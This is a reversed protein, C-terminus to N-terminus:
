RTAPGGQDSGDLGAERGLTRLKNALLQLAEGHGLEAFRVQEQAEFTELFLSVSTLAASAAIFLAWLLRDPAAEPEMQLEYVGTEPGRVVHCDLSRMSPHAYNNSLMRFVTYEKAAPDSSTIKGVEIRSKTKTKAQEIAIKRMSEDLVVDPMGLILKALAAEAKADEDFIDQVFDMGRQHLGRQWLVNEVCSRAIISAEVLDGGRALSLTARYSHLTRFLLTAAYVTPDNLGNPQSYKVEVTSVIRAAEERVEVGLDFWPQYDDPWKM